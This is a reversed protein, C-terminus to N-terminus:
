LEAIRSEINIAPGLKLGMTVLQDRDLQVLARGDIEHDLFVQKYKEFGISTIYEQVRPVDWGQCEPRASKKKTATNGLFAPVAAGLAVHAKACRMSCFRYLGRKVLKKVAGHCHDCKGTDNSAAANPDALREPPAPPATLAVPPPADQAHFCQHNRIYLVLKENEGNLFELREELERMYTKKRERSKRASIKNKVRTAENRDGLPPYPAWSNPHANATTAASADHQEM